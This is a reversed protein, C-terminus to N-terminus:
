QSDLLQQRPRYAPPALKLMIEYVQRDLSLGNRIAMQRLEILDIVPGMTLNYSRHKNTGRIQKDSYDEVGPIELGLMMISIRDGHGRSELPRCLIEVPRHPFPELLGRRGQQPAELIVGPKQPTETRLLIGQARRTFEIYGFGEAHGGDWPIELGAQELKKEEKITDETTIDALGIGGLRTLMPLNNLDRQHRAIPSLLNARRFMGSHLGFASFERVLEGNTAHPTLIVLGKGQKLVNDAKKLNGEPDIIKYPYRLGAGAALIVRRTPEPWRDFHTVEILRDAQM